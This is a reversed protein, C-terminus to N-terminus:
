QSAGDLRCMRMVFRRVTSGHHEDSWRRAAARTEDGPGELCDAIAEYPAQVDQADEPYGARYRALLKRLGAVPGVHRGHAHPQWDLQGLTM